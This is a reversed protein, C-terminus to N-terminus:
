RVPGASVEGDLPQQLIRRQPRLVDEVGLVLPTHWMVLGSAALLAVQLLADLLPLHASRGAPIGPRM